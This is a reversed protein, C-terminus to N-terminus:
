KQSEDDRLTSGLKWKTNNRGSSSKDPQHFVLVTSQGDRVGTLAEYLQLHKDPLLKVLLVFYLPLWVFVLGSQRTMNLFINCLHYRLDDIAFLCKWFPSPLPSLRLFLVTESFSTHLARQLLSDQCIRTIPLLLTDKVPLISCDLAFPTSSSPRRWISFHRLM